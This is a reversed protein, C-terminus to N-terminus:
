VKKVYILIANYLSYIEGWFRIIRLTIPTPIQFSTTCNELASLQTHQLKFLHDFTRKYAKQRGNQLESNNRLEVMTLM